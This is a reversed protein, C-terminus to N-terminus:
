RLLLQRDHLLGSRQMPDGPLRVPAHRSSRHQLRTRRSGIARCSEFHNDIGVTELESETSIKINFGHGNCNRVIVKRCYLNQAQAKLGHSTTNNAKNGDIALQEIAVDKIGTTGFNEGELVVINSANKAKIITSTWGAGIVTINSPAVLTTGTIFTGAPFQVTGNVAKAATFAASIAIYDDTQAMARPGM